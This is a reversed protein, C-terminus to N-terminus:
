EDDKDDRYSELPPISDLEEGKWMIKVNKKGKESMRKEERERRILEKLYKNRRSLSWIRKQQYLFISLAGFLVEGALEKLQEFM